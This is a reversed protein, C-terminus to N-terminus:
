LFFIETGVAGVAGDGLAEFDGPLYTNTFHDNCKRNYEGNVNIQLFIKKYIKSPLPPNKLEDELVDHHRSNSCKHVYDSLIKNKGNVISCFGFFFKIYRENLSSRTKESFRKFLPEHIFNQYNNLILKSSEKYLSKFNYTDALLFPLMPNRRYNDELFKKCAIILSEIVFKDSIRLLREVNNFIPIEEECAHDIMDKFVASAFYMTLNKMFGMNYINGGVDHPDPSNGGSNSDAPLSRTYHEIKKEIIRDLNKTIKNNIILSALINMEAHLYICKEVDDDLQPQKTANDTYVKRIRGMVEPKKLCRDMFREYKDEVEEDEDIFRKIINKWSYIPQNDIIVPKGKKVKINSFLPKYQPKKACDIIGKISAFYSGVKKIHGLFKPSINSNDKVLKYYEYCVLSLSIYNGEDGIEASIYDRLSKVHENDNNNMDNNLKNWRSEFKTCCCSMVAIFFTKETNSDKLIRLWVAVVEKDRALITALYCSFRDHINLDAVKENAKDVVFNICHAVCEKGYLEKEHDKEEEYKKECEKKYKNLENLKKPSM